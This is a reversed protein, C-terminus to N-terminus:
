PEAKDVDVKLMAMAWAAGDTTYLPNEGFDFSDYFSAAELYLKRALGRRRWAPHVLITFSEGDVPPGDCITLVARPNGTDDAWAFVDSGSGPLTYNNIGPQFTASPVYLFQKDLIEIIFEDPYLEEGDLTAEIIPEDCPNSGQDSDDPLHQLPQKM